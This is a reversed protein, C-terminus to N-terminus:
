RVLALAGMPDWPELKIIEKDLAKLYKKSIYKKDVMIQYNYENFWDDSMSYIGKDGSTDGWSNEVMWKIPKGDKDLDVGTFVMAHTLLSEGYDLRQAKTFSWNESGLTYRYNYMQLDMIGAERDLNKGVDCGFWVPNGDKISKIAASKLEEIPVNIYCIPKAEKVTGLFKVTYAREYPKDDTPANILSIKDELKWNVYEKFFKQPTLNEIRHFVKDKDYYEYDFVTPVEGLCKVLINYVDQLQEEKIARLKEISTKNEKYETRLIQAFKRLKRTIVVDLMRTNSSHFTEPMMYKPVSGYKELLGSFMDWQGGDQVPAQLLHSIIRSNTEEDLTELISELFYNSKELKDWFLTYNQSFEFTELNLKKMVDVRATNLSAFMWCRGSQKQNTIEGRKTVDSFVFNHKRVVENNLSASQIGVKAISGAVAKNIDNSKYENEYKKLLENSIKM